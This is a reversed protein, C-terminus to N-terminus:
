HGLVAAIMQRKVRVYDIHAFKELRARILETLYAYEKNTGEAGVWRNDVFQGVMKHVLANDGYITLSTREIAPYEAQLYRLARLLVTFEAQNSDKIGTMNYARHEILTDPSVRDYFLKFSGHITGGDFYLYLHKM